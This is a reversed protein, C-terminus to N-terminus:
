MAKCSFPQVPRERRRETGIEKKASAVFREGERERPGSSGMSFSQATM